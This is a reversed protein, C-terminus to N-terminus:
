FVLCLLLLPEDATLTYQAHLTEASPLESM